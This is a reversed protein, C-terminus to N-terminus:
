ELWEDDDYEEPDDATSRLSWAVSETFKFTVYTREFESFGPFTAIAHLAEAVKGRGETLRKTVGELARMKEPTIGLAEEVTDCSRIYGSLSVAESYCAEQEMM